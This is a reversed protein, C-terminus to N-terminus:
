REDNTSMCVPFIWQGFEDIARLDEIHVAANRDKVASLFPNASFM